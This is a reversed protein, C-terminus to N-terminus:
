RAAAPGIRTGPTGRSVASAPVIPVAASQIIRKRTCGVGDSRRAACPAESHPISGAKFSSANM